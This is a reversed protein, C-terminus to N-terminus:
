GLHKDFFALTRDRATRMAVFQEETVGDRVHINRARQDAVTCEWTPARGAPPRPAAAKPTPCCAALLLALVASM